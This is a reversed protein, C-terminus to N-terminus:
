VGSELDGSMTPTGNSIMCSTSDEMTERTGLLPFDPMELRLCCFIWNSSMLFRAGIHNLVLAKAGIRQAFDGAMEPISHGRALAKELVVEPRRKSWKGSPDAEQSIHSDTAEHVLLSADLCLPIM